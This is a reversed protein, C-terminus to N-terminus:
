RRLVRMKVVSGAPIVIEGMAWPVCRNAEGSIHSVLVKVKKTDKVLWGVSRCMLPGAENEIEELPHWRDGALSHSDLWEILVLKM